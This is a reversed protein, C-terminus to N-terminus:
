CPKILSKFQLLESQKAKAFCSLALHYVEESADDIFTVQQNNSNEILLHYFAVPGDIHLSSEILIDDVQLTLTKTHTSFLTEVVHHESLTISSAYNIITEKTAAILSNM